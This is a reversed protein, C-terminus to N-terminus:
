VKGAVSPQVLKLFLIRLNVRNHIEFFKFSSCTGFTCSLCTISPSTQSLVDIASSTSTTPNWYKIQKDSGSFLYISGMREISSITVGAALVYTATTLGNSISSPYYALVTTSLAAVFGTGDASAEIAKIIGPFGAVVTSSYTYENFKILRKQDDTVFLQDGVETMAIFNNNGNDYTGVQIGNQVNFVYFYVYNKNNYDTVASALIGTSLQVLFQVNQGTNITNIASPSGTSLGWIIITNDDSGSALNGNFLPEIANVKQTHGTLNYVSSYSPYSWVAKKKNQIL